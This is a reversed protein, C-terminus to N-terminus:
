VTLSAHTHHENAFHICISISKVVRWPMATCVRGAFARDSCIGSERVVHAYVCVYM